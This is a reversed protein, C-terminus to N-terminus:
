FQVEFGAYINRGRGNRPGEPLRSVINEEDFINAVGGILKWNDNIQYWASIDFVLAEDVKGERSSTVPNAHNGGTGYMSSTWTADLNAGWSSMDVGIGAALKWEPIYPIDNGAENGGQFDTFINETDTALNQKLTAQTWTASVYMPLRYAQGNATAPDFSVQAEIGYVEAAGGNAPDGIGVGTAPALLNDFDTYFGVLEFGRAKEADHHRWGLEYSISTEEDTQSVPNTNTYGGPGPTSVGRYIGGFLKDTDCIDFTFGMGGAWTTLAGDRFANGKYDEYNYEMHEIRLGPRLTWKGSKIEDELFVSTAVTEQRRDADSGHVGSSTQGFDGAGTSTYQDVWQYRYERDKHLRIGSTISHDVSGLSFDYTGAFQVGYSYYDRNNAKVDIVDGPTMGQLSTVAAPNLLASHLSAGNIKNLKYWNRNFRNYYATAELKFDDTPEATYKLYTRYQFTDINDFKTAAYRDYPRSRVDAEALGLYSEDADFDTYGLKFEFRQKLATDPEWFLKFMPEIREFGTSSGGHGQISRFGDSSQYHMELLYGLLGNETEVTNGYHSHGTFTNDSGYIFRAYFSEQDPIPTSLYNIVGGTTHPGYKVQSSGKLIELGSMRGANPSYYAGPASYPAPAMLIGDEMITTKESRTGLGGRVSINPFLGFGDEERTYVGPVKALIRNINTYNQQRIDDTDIYAASGVLDLARDKGGVVTLPSLSGDDATLASLAALNGLSFAALAMTKHM